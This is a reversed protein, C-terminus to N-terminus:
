VTSRPGIRVHGLGHSSVKSNIEVTMWAWGGLVSESRNTHRTDIDDATVIAFTTATRSFSVQVYPEFFAPDDRDADGGGLKSITVRVTATNGDTSKFMPAVWLLITKTSPLMGRGIRIPCQRVLEYTGAGAFTDATEHITPQQSPTKYDVLNNLGRAIDRDYGTDYPKGDGIALTAYRAPLETSPSATPNTSQGVTSSILAYAQRTNEVLGDTYDAQYADTQQTPDATAYAASIIRYKKTDDWAPSSLAPTVTIDNGSVVDVARSWMLPSAAVPPDIEVIVILEDTAFHSADDASAAESHEAPYCRLTATGSNYGSAFGGADATDDVQACPSYPAQANRDFIMVDIEGFAPRTGGGLMPGGWNFRHGVVIGPWGTLGGLGTTHDYRLGTDPARIGLDTLTVLTGATAQEFYRRDITRRIIRRPRTHMPLAAGWAALLPVIDWPSSNRASITIARTGHDRMSPADRIELTGTYSGGPDRSHEIKIVNYISEVPDTSAGRQKDGDAQERPVAKMSETLALTAYGAVPTTWARMRLAGASWSLFAWRLCLDSELLDSFRTPEDIQIRVLRDASTINALDTALTGLLSWPVGCGLSEALVDHTAHNYAATGTSALIQLLLSSWQGEILLVQKVELESADDEVTFVRPSGPALAFPLYPALPAALYSFLTDSTRTAAVYGLSGIKLITDFGRARLSAPLISSQNVWTGSTSTLTLPHAVNTQQNSDALVFARRPAEPSTMELARNWSTISISGVGDGWGLFEGMSASPFTLTAGRSFSGLTPDEYGFVARIGGDAPTMSSYRLNLPINTAAKEGALWAQIADGIEAATYTGEQIETHDAPAGVVVRLDDADGSSALTNATCSWSNMPYKLTVGELLSARFQDRLITEEYIKHRVDKAIVVTSGDEAENAEAIHGAFALHGQTTTTYGTSTKTLIWIGIARGALGNRPTGSVVPELRVGIADGTATSPDFSRHTRSFGAGGSTQFPSYTARTVGTFTTATVGSYTFAECGLHAVGSSAFDATTAVTITTDDRDVAARLYTEDIASRRFVDRGFTDVLAGADNQGPTVVIRVTPPDSIPRWPDARERVDWEVFLGCQVDTVDHGGLGGTCAALVLSPDGDTLAYSYGEIIAVYVVAAGLNANLEDGATTM